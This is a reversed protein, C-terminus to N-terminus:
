RIIYTIFLLWIGTIYLSSTSIFDGICIFVIMKFERVHLNKNNIYSIFLIILFLISIGGPVVICLATIEDINRSM